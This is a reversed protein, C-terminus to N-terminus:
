GRRLGPVTAFPFIDKAVMVWPQLSIKGKAVKVSPQLSALKLPNEWKKWSFKNVESFMYKGIFKASFLLNWKENKLTSEWFGFNLTGEEREGEGEGERAGEGDGEGEEGGGLGWGRGKGGRWRWEGWVWWGLPRSAAIACELNYMLWHVNYM